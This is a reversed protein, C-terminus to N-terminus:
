FTRAPKAEYLLLASTAASTRHLPMQRNPVPSRQNATTPFPLAFTPQWRDSPLRVADMPAVGPPCSPFNKAQQRIKLLNLGNLVNL